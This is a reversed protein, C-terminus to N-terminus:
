QCIVGDIVQRAWALLEEDRPPQAGFGAPQPRPVLMTRVPAKVLSKPYCGTSAYSARTPCSWPISGSTSARARHGRSVGATRARARFSAVPSCGRRGAAPPEGYRDVLEERLLRVDDDSRVEALRKYMELRLRESPIYDHPLHADIPLEIKVEVPQERSPATRGSSAAGGRRGAPRLPRLRRRRHARVARRRAPQGGRPDRPGEDRDGHRRRPRLAAGPHGAARARDRDAAQGAPLPLLRLRTRPSRGVRGRLQHLQSLGLTDSREIIMTNANSVDLGSEVITTCVLVDFRKEWFDLMVQELQHEGMQGHATAVRAEPVLESSRPPRRRSRSCGTTSTSCRVTASCSADYRRRDVQRDEYAGVYTLM